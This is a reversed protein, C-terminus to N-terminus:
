KKKNNNSTVRGAAFRAHLGRKKESTNPTTDKFFTNSLFQKPNKFNKVSIIEGEKSVNSVGAPFPNHKQREEEKEENSM